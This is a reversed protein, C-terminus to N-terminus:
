GKELEENGNAIFVNFCHTFPFLIAYDQDGRKLDFFIGNAHCQSYLMKDM